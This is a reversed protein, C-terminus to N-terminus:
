NTEKSKNKFYNIRHKTQRKMKKIPDNLINEWWIRKQERACEKCHYSIDRGVVFIDHGNHCFRKKNNNNITM